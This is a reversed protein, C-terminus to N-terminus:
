YVSVSQSVSSAVEFILISGGEVSQSRAERGGHGRVTTHLTRPARDDRLSFPPWPTCTTGRLPPARTCAIPTRLASM